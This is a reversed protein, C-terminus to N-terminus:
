KRRNFGIAALAILGLVVVIGLAPVDNVRESGAIDTQGAQKADYPPLNGGSGQYSAARTSEASADGSGTTTTKGQADATTVTPGASGGQTSSSIEAVAPMPRAYCADDYCPSYKSEGAPSEVDVRKTTEGEAVVFTTTGQLHKDAWSSLQYHGAKVLIRYSGTADTVASGWDGTDQNWVNVTAGAVGKQLNPDVVYGILVITPDSKPELQIDLTREGEALMFAQQYAYYQKQPAQPPPVSIVDGEGYAVPYAMGNYYVSIQVWGPITKFSYQGSQDTTVYDYKGWELNGLSVGANALPLGTKADFVRGTIIGSADPVKQLKLSADTTQEAVAEFETTSQAYGNAYATVQKPGAQTKFSFKGDPGTTATQYDDDYYAPRTMASHAPETESSPADVPMAQKEYAYCCGQGISVQAGEIPNGQEDTVVGEVLANRPPPSKLSLSIGATDALIELDQSASSRWPEYWAQLNAKGSALKLAFTGDAATQTTDSAQSGDPSYSYGSVTADAVPNGNEDIVVGSVVFTDAASASPATHVMVAIFTIVVALPLAFKTM